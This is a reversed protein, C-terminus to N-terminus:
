AAFGRGGGRGGPSTRVGMRALVEGGYGDPFLISTIHTYSILTVRISNTYIIVWQVFNYFKRIHMPLTIQVHVTNM